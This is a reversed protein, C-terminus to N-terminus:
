ARAGGEGVVVVNHSYWSKPLRSDVVRSGLIVQRALGWVRSVSLEKPIERVPLERHLSGLIV